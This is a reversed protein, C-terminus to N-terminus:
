KEVRGLVNVIDIMLYRKNNSGYYQWTKKNEIVVRDGKKLDEVKPGVAIVKSFILHKKRTQPLYILGHKEEDQNEPEIVLRSTLARLINEQKDEVAYILCEHLFVYKTLGDEITSISYNGPQYRVIEGEKVDKIEKGVKLIKGRWPDKGGRRYDHRMTEPYYIGGASKEPWEYARLLVRKKSPLINKM